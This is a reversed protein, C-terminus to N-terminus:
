AGAPCAVYSLKFPILDIVRALLDRGRWYADCFDALALVLNLTYEVPAFVLIVFCLELYLPKAPVILLGIRPLWDGVDSSVTSFVGEASIDGCLVVFRKVLEHWLGITGRHLFLPPLFSVSRSL